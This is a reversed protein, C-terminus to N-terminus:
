SEHCHAFVGDIQEKLNRAFEKLLEIRSHSATEQGRGGLFPLRLTSNKIASRYAPNPPNVVPLHEIFVRM